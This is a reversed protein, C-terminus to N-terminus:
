RPAAEGPARLTLSLAHLGTAFEGDLAAHVARSRALRGMGAFRASILTVAYHTEGRGDPNGAHGAHHASEDVVDLAVPAFERALVARIREARTATM